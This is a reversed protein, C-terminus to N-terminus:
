DAGVRELLVEGALVGRAPDWEEGGTIQGRVDPLLTLAVIGAILVLVVGVVIAIRRRRNRRRDSRRPRRSRRGGGDGSLAGVDPQDVTGRGSRSSRTSRPGGPRSSWLDGVEVDEERPIPRVDDPTRPGSM